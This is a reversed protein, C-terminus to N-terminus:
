ADEGGALLVLRSWLVEPYAIGEVLCRAREARMRDGPVLVPAGDAARPSARLAALYDSVAAGTVGGPDVAIVLDGKTVPKTADLTGHVDQGLATASLLAVLLEIGLGLGYGKAGGFPSIAGALAARPDITPRGAADVACGAPLDQERDAHAIIEGASIAGTAMDLVYPDPDAPVGIAIPNTGVMAVRGGAPHVLAESTTLAIGVLGDAALREVYPALMGLHGAQRIAVLGIGHARALAAARDVALHAAPPGFGHGGDVLATATGRGAVTPSAQADLVGNEIRAVLTPLRQIGHSPRGRLDGEVLQRVQQEAAPSPAQARALIDIGMAMVRESSVTVRRDIVAM